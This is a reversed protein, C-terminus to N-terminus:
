KTKHREFFIALADIENQDFEWTSMHDRAWFKLSIRTTSNLDIKTLSIIQDHSQIGLYDGKLDTCKLLM